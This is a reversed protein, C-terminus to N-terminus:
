QRTCKQRLEVQEMRKFFTTLSAVICVLRCVGLSACKSSKSELSYYSSDDGTVLKMRHLQQM